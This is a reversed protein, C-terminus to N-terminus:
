KINPTGIQFVGMIQSNTKILKFVKNKNLQIIKILFIFICIPLYFDLNVLFHSYLSICRVIFSMWCPMVYLLLLWSVDLFYVIEVLACVCSTEIAIFFSLSLISCQHIFSRAIWLFTSWIPTKRVLPDHVSMRTLLDDKFNHKNFYLIYFPSFIQFFVSFILQFTTFHGLAAPLINFVGVLWMSVVSRSFSIIIPLEFSLLM